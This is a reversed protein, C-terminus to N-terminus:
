EIVILKNFCTNGSSIMVHYIGAQKIEAQVFVNNNQMDTFSNQYVIRGTIDFISVQVASTLSNDTSIYFNGDSPNPYIDPMKNQLILEPIDSSAACFSSKRHIDRQFMLWPPGQGKGAKICYAMGYNKSFNPYRSYGGVIFIDLTGDNDFDAVLPAHDFAMTDGYISDINLYLLMNGNKGNLAIVEGESTGYIVDPLADNNIDALAAGRFSSGYDPNNFQWKLRGKASLVLTKYWSMFVIECSDDGDIDAISAPSGNYFYEPMIYEWALTGNEANLCYLAGSYDGIVLEPKDDNDLDAVATGHYVYDRVPYSWLLQRDYGRYAYVKSKGYFNWSAVVFDPKNDKDLDVITPATQIWSDSDVTIEWAKSGDEANLCIVYGGFQGHLIEAKGDGDIDAITPPSDSGRTPAEWLVKGTKGDFCFTKPNCSAPVIVEPTKDNNIDYLIPAVDNCGEAFATRANFKWLLTGDEANLAYIMSDNRYCGFVIELKGDNDIDAAASQGYSADNVRYQWKINNSQSYVFVSCLLLTIILNIKRM